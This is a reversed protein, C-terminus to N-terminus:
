RACRFGIYNAQQTAHVVHRRATRLDRALRLGWSGGRYIAAPPRNCDNNACTRTATWEMLNGGMDRVGFASVDLESEGVRCTSGRSLRNWCVDGSPEDNGWPFLRFDVGRAAIEWEDETPLRKDVFQCYTEAQDASVCNAPHQGRGEVDYNCQEAREPPTCVGLDICSQYAEVTVESVDIEFAPLSVQRVPHGLYRLDTAGVRATTAPIRGYYALRSSWVVAQGRIMEPERNRKRRDRRAISPAHFVRVYNDPPGLARRFAEDLAADVVALHRELQFHSISQTAAITTFGAGRSEEPLQDALPIDIGLLAHLSREVERRTLRRQQTRGAKLYHEKEFDRLWDGTTALFKAADAPDPVNYDPPPMEGAQVRDYVAVWRRFVEPDGLDAKVSSLDLDAEQGISDHCDFCYNELFATTAQPREEALLGGGIPAWSAIAAMVVVSTTRM